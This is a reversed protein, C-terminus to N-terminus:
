FNIEIVKYVGQKEGVKSLKNNVIRMIKSLYIQHSFRSEWLSITFM